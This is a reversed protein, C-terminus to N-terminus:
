GSTVSDTTVNVVENQFTNKKINYELLLNPKPEKEPYFHRKTKSVSESEELIKGKRDIKLKPSKNIIGCAVGVSLVYTCCYGLEFYGDYAVM